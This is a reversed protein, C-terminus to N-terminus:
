QSSTWTSLQIESENKSKTLIKKSTGDREARVWVRKKIASAVSEITCLLSHLTPVTGCEIMLLLEATVWAFINYTAWTQDTRNSLQTRQSQDMVRYFLDQACALRALTMVVVLGLRSVLTFRLTFGYSWDIWEFRIGLSWVRKAGLGSV